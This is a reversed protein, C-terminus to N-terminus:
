KINPNFTIAPAGGAIHTTQDHRYGIEEFSKTSFKLSENINM